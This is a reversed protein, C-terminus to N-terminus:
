GTTCLDKRAFTNKTPCSDRRALASAFVNIDARYFRANRIEDLLACIREHLLIKRPARIGEHWRPPMYM